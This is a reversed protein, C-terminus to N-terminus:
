FTSSVLTNLMYVREKGGVRRERNLSSSLTLLVNIECVVVPFPPPEMHNKKKHKKKKEEVRKIYSPSLHSIVILFFSIM